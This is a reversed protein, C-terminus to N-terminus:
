AMWSVIVVLAFFTIWALVTRKALLVADVFADINISDPADDPQHLAGTGSDALLSDSDRQWFDAFHRVAHVVDAFNGVIAFSFIALRAPVWMLIDYLDNASQALGTEERNFREKLLCSARFLAAGVPGLFIFWFFVGLIHTCLRVFVLRKIAHLNTATDDQVDEGLFDAALHNATEKDDQQLAHAYEQALRIPDRPGLSMSLVFVAFIFALIGALAGLLVSVLWVALGVPLLIAVITLPGQQIKRAAFQHSIWDTLQDFWDFRRWNEIPKYGLEIAISLLIAIFFSMTAM